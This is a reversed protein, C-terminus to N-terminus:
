QRALERPRRFLAEPFEALRSERVKAGLSFFERFSMILPNWKCPDVRAAEGEFLLEEEIQVKTIHVEFAYANVLNGFKHAEHLVGEMQVPCEMVRPPEVTESPVPTLDAIEFKDPEYRYGMRVKYEPVPNRGTTLALRDVHHAQHASPLNVVCERTRMLNESTMSAQALGLMCSQGLWWVSSM